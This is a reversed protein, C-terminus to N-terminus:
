RSVNGLILRDTNASAKQYSRRTSCPSSSRTLLLSCWFLSCALIM